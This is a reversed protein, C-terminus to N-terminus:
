RPLYNLLNHGRLRTPFAPAAGRRGPESLVGDVEWVGAFLSHRPTPPRWAAGLMTGSWLDDPVTRRGEPGGPVVTDGDGTLSLSPDCWNSM